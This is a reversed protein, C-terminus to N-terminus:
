IEHLKLDKRMECIIVDELKKFTNNSKLKNGADIYKKVIEIRLEDSLGHSNSMAHHHMFNDFVFQFESRISNLETIMKESLFPQNILYYNIFSNIKDMIVQGDKDTDSYFYQYRQISLKLDYIKGLIERYIEIRQGYIGSYAIKSREISREIKSQIFLYFVINIVTVALASFIATLLPENECEM